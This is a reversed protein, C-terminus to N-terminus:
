FRFYLFPDNLGQYLSYVCYWFAIFLVIYGSFHNKIKSYIRYPIRTCFLIALILFIYYQGLYKLYDNPFPVNGAGSLFPFLKTFFLLMQDFDTVSFLVWTLPIFFLVYLHGIFPYQNLYRALFLKELYIFVFLSLGWLLFNLNAGHWLGTVAWVILLNRFTRFNSGRNGGLPIYLYDRFWRGLTMHWRRWFESISTSLYPHNFNQPYRFGIMQGLGIAMLSYGFFDFYIQFSRAIIALWAMQTSISDFGINEANSWIGGVRNAILVKLALGFIFTKTGNSVTYINFKRSKLNESVEIYNVIPGAILQPFMSIFTGFDVLNNECEVHKFYVDILYSVAQFTYFSIGIPLLLNFFPSQKVADSVPIFIDVQEMLFRAYKFVILCSFNMILGLILIKRKHVVNSAIAKGLYFNLIISFVIILLYAPHSITGYGYFLISFILLNLNKYRTPTFIYSILFLPLFVFIFELSSFVM